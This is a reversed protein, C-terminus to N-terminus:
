KCVAVNFPVFHRLLLYAIFYTKFAYSFSKSPVHANFHAGTQTDVGHKICLSLTEKAFEIGFYKIPFELVLNVKEVDGMVEQDFGKITYPVGEYIFEQGVHFQRPLVVHKKHDEIANAQLGLVLAGLLLTKKM